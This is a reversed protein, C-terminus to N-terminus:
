ARQLRSAAGPPRHHKLGADNGAEIHLVSTDHLADIEYVEDIGAIRDLRRLDVVAFAGVFKAEEVDSSTDLVAIRQEIDDRPRGLLAKHWKSDAAADARKFVHALQQQGTRVLHRDIGFGHLARVEHALRGLFQPSISSVEISRSPVL